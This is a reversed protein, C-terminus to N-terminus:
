HIERVGPDRGEHHRFLRTALWRLERDGDQQAFMLQELAYARDCWMLATNVRWGREAMRELFPTLLSTPWPLAPETERARFRRQAWQADGHALLRDMVPNWTPAASGASPNPNSLAM